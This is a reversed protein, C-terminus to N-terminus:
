KAMILWRMDEHRVTPLSHVQAICPLSGVESPPLAGEQGQGATLETDGGEESVDTGAHVIAVGDCHPEPAVTLVGVEGIQTRIHITLQSTNDHTERQVEHERIGPTRVENIMLM